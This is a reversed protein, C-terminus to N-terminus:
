AFVLAVVVILQSERFYFTTFSLFGSSREIAVHHFLTSFDKM